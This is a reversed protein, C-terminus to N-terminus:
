DRGGDALSGLTRAPDAGEKLCWDREKYRVCRYGKPCHPVGPNCLLPVEGLDPEICSALLLPLGLLWQRM